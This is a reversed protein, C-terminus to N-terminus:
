FAFFQLSSQPFIWPAKEKAKAHAAPKIREGSGKKFCFPRFPSQLPNNQLIRSHTSRREQFVTCHFIRHTGCFSFPVPLIMLFLLPSIASGALIGVPLLRLYINRRRLSTTLHRSFRLFRTLMRAARLQRIPYITLLMLCLVTTVPCSRGPTAIVAPPAPCPAPEQFCMRQTDPTLLLAPQHFGGHHVMDHRVTPILLQEPIFGVPLCQALFAMVALSHGLVPILLVSISEPM